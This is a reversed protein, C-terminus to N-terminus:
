GVEDESRVVGGGLPQPVGGEEWREVVGEGARPVGDRHQAVYGRERADDGAQVQVEGDELEGDDEGQAAREAHAGLQPLVRGQKPPKHGRNQIPPQSPEPAPPPMLREPCPKNRGRPPQQAAARMRMGMMMVMVMMVM